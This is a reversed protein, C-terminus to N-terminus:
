ESRFVYGTGRATQILTPREPQPEIKQRVRRIYVDIRNSDGVYDYNWLREILAKRSIVVNANRMLHELIKMETPTLQAGPCLPGTFCLDSLDLTYAGVRVPNSMPPQEARRYRRLVTHIRALLEATEFPKTIYDDAGLYLGDVKDSALDRATLFIIPIDPHTRRLEDCLTFGDLYPLMVDLLILDIAQSGLLSAVLRPDALASVAYSQKRLLSTVMNEVFPDDEVVLVHTQILSIDETDRDCRPDRM